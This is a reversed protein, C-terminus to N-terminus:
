KLRDINLSNVGYVCFLVIISIFLLRVSFLVESCSVRILVIGEISCVSSFCFLSFGVICIILMVLLVNVLDSIFVVSFLLMVVIYLRYLGDFFM